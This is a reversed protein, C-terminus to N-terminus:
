KKEAKDKKKLLNNLSNKITNEANKKANELPKEESSASDKKGGILQKAIDEKLDKVVQNKIAKASDLVTNKTSDIQTKVFETAQQKMETAISEASEKLNTKIIPNTISGEMRVTLNVSDSVKVPIGTSSAKQALNNILANGQAGMLSRPFKMGIVYDISQDIGHVGGIEMDIDKVKVHFPKVLVKGNAFDFYTKIDKLAFDTLQSINLTQALKEVPAFKQLFGNLLLVDGKGTLTAIDPAMDLGLKGTMSLQSNIIGSIFKGVPMLKQVTNFAFFTKQADLNKVDYNLAVDPHLKDNKTSYSGNMNITGGLANMEINRLDVMQDKIIVSGKLNDYETKDYIMKDVDANLVFSVNKPVVFPESTQNENSATDTGMFDNLNLKDVQVNLNGAIPEDKLAYGIANDLSGNATINSSLYAASLSNLIINKPNFIFGANKVRVGQPYDKSVYDLDSINLNGSTNIKEYEKKDIAAKNGKFTLDAALMGSLKTGPELTTFQSVSALNFKGKAAGDFYLVSAPNKILVNFDIPNNGIELHAAPIQIVTHDAVGDPNEFKIQVNSNSIPQPFDSSSYNLSSINLFGNATFPGPKQQTIVALNGKASVDADLLGSLKTDGSLKIFKTVQALNLKGKLAAEIYQVTVPNKLFLTFDFPDNGFEIHGKSVDIVTHDTIGDPNDVKVALGINKVPQPLDPYQFFGKEVNLNIHYAPIKVSNYEGKVFGNFVAKGSTKIKSFDNNYIAPVLSLLTKFETSPANFKIDMGYTSDNVFQFYGETSLKLDNLEIDDTKFTYKENKTNVQIDANLITKVNVLYPINAYTFSVSEATTKTALTFLDSTFDGSGSHNLHFIETSMNGPIDVYSIYADNITYKKLSLKFESEKQPTASTDPKTIDWNAKGEKNVIAHVRPKDVTISYIKMEADGFLSMFNLAVDIKKASLLTDKSFDGTGIIQLNELGAAVHPFHRFFSIDVDKFDVQASLNKNIQKKAIAMIKGKFLLPLLFAIIILSLLVIGTIKVIKKVM